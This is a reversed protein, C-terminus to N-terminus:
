IVIAVAVLMIKFCLTTMNLQFPIIGSMDNNVHLKIQNIFSAAYCHCTNYITHHVCINNNVIVLFM